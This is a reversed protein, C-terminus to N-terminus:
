MPWDLSHGKHRGELWEDQQGSRARASIDRTPELLPVDSFLDLPVPPVLNAFDSPDGTNQRFSINSQEM